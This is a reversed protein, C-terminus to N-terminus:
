TISSSPWGFWGYSRSVSPPRPNRMRTAFGPSVSVVSSSMSRVSVSSSRSMQSASSRGIPRAPIMPPASVSILSEVVVTARSIAQNAGCPTLRETARKAQARLRRMAELPAGIRVDDVRGDGAEDLQETLRTRIEDDVGAGDVGAAPRQRRLLPRARHAHRLDVADDARREGGGVERGQEIRDAEGHGAVAVDAVDGDRRPPRVAGLLDVDDFLDGAHVPVVADAGGQGDDGPCPRSDSAWCRRRRSRSTRSPRPIVSAIGFGNRAGSVSARAPSSPSARRM